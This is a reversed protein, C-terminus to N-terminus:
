KSKYPKTWCQSLKYVHLHSVTSANVSAVALTGPPQLTMAVNRSMTLSGGFLGCCKGFWCFWTWFNLGGSCHKMNQQCTDVAIGQWVLGSRALAERLQQVNLSRRLRSINPLTGWVRLHLSSPSHNPRDQFVFSQSTTYTKDAQQGFLTETLLFGRM